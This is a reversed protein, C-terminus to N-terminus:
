VVVPYKKEVRYLQLVRYAVLKISQAADMENRTVQAM